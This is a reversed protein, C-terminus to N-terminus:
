PPVASVAPATATHCPLPLPQYPHLRTHYPHLERIIHHPITCIPRISPIPKHPCLPCELHSLLCLLHLPQPITTATASTAKYPISAVRTHYPKTHYPSTPACRASLTACCVCCTCHSHPLPLPLPVQPKPHSSPTGSPITHYTYTHYPITHYPNSLHIYPHISTHIYPHISTHIYPHRSTHIGSHSSAQIAPHRFPAGNKIAKYIYKACSAPVLPSSQNPKTAKHSSQSSPHCAKKTTSFFIPTRLGM